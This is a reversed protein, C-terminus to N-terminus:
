DDTDGIADRLQRAAQHWVQATPDGLERSNGNAEWDAALAYLRHAVSNPGRDTSGPGALGPEQVTPPTDLLGLPMDLLSPDVGQAILDDRQSALKRGQENLDAISGEATTPFLALVAAAADDAATHMTGGHDRAYYYADKIVRALEGEDPLRETM